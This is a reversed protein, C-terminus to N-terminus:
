DPYLEDDFVASEFGDLFRVRQMLVGHDVEPFMLRENIVVVPQGHRKALETEHTTSPMGHRYFM